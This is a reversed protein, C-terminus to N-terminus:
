RSGGETGRIDRSSLCRAPRCRRYRFRCLTAENHIARSQARTLASPPTVPVGRQCKRLAPARYVNRCRGSIPAPPFRNAIKVLPHPGKSDGAGNIPKDLASRAPCHARGGAGGREGSPLPAPSAPARKAASGTGDGGNLHQPVEAADLGRGGAKRAGSRPAQAPPDRHLPGLGKPTSAAGAGLSGAPM